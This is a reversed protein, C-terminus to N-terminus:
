MKQQLKQSKRLYLRIARKQASEQLLVEKRNVRLNHEADHVSHLHQIILFTGSAQSQKQCTVFNKFLEKLNITDTNLFRYQSLQNTLFILPFIYYIIFYLLIYFFQNIHVKGQIRFDFMQTCSAVVFIVQNILSGSHAACLKGWSCM